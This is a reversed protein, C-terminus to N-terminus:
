NFCTHATPLKHTEKGDGFIYFKMTKLGTVPARDSGTSFILLKKRNEDDWENLVIEWFWKM